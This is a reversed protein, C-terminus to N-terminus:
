GTLPYVGKGLKEDVIWEMGPIHVFLYEPLDTLVLEERDESAARQADLPQLQWGKM